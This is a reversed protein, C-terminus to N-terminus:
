GTPLSVTVRTGGRPVRGDPGAELRGGIAAVREAATAQGIQGPEFRGDDVVELRVTGGERALTVALESIGDHRAAAGILQRGISLLLEDHAGVAADDVDVRTDFGTAHAQQEAVARLAAGLGGYRLVTPHLAIMVERLDRAIARLREQAVAADPGDGLGYLDHGAALLDQLPGDHLRDSIGRRARAEADLAQAVLRGRAAALDAIEHATERRAIAEGLVHAVGQLFTIEDEDFRHPEVGYATLTGYLRVPTHIPVCLASRAGGQAAPGTPAFRQERAWDEVAVAEDVDTAYGSLTPEGPPIAPRPSFGPPAVYGRLSLERTGPVLEQVGAYEAELTAAVLECTRQLLEEVDGGGLGLRGLEALAQRRRSAREGATIDQTFGQMGTVEGADDVIPTAQVMLVRLRGDAHRIRCRQRLPRRHAIAAALEADLAPRDEPVIRELWGVRERLGPEDAAVGLIEALAPSYTITGSPFSSVWWGLEAIQQAAELQRESELLDDGFRGHGTIDAVSIGVRAAGADIARLGVVWRRPEGGTARVVLEVQIPTGESAVQEVLPLLQAAADPSVVARLTRGTPDVDPMGALVALSRSAVLVAAGADLVAFAVMADAPLGSVLALAAQAGGPDHVSVTSEYGGSRRCDVRRSRWLTAISGNAM